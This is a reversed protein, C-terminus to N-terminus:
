WFFDEIIINKRSVKLKALIKKLSVKMTEPGCIYFLSNSINKVYKEIIDQNIYGIEGAALGSSHDNLIYVKKFWSQKIGDLEQRYILDVETKAGYLLVVQQTTAAALRDRILSIFPALGVGGAILVLDKARNKVTFVGFPGDVIIEDGPKLESLARTFRGQIKVIFCLAAEGPSSVITFPHRAYLKAQNLRLFCFQGAQFSFKKEPKLALTFVDKTERKVGEVYFKGRRRQKLKYNTRYVAGLAVAALLILYIVKLLWNGSDSGLYFAHYLSFGFLIYTFIHIYQWVNYSIRKYLASSVMVIVYLYLSIVGLALPLVAFNPILYNFYNGSSLMFFLPHAIVFISTILAFKRQFKIIKDMGFVRDFFRATDGSIILISLFLFGILGTIKGISHLLLNTSIGQSIFPSFVVYAFVLCSFVIFFLFIYRAIEKDM